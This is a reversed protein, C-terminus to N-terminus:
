FVIKTEDPISYQRNCGKVDLVIRTCGNVAWKSCESPFSDVFIGENTRLTLTMIRLVVMMVILFVAFCELVNIVGMFIRELVSPM